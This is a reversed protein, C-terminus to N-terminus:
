YDSLQGPFERTKTSGSPKHDHKLFVELTIINNALQTWYMDDFGCGKVKIFSASKWGLAPRTLPMYRLTELAHSGQTWLLKFVAFVGPFCERLRGPFAWQGLHICSRTLSWWEMLYSETCDPPLEGFNWRFIRDGDEPDFILSAVLKVCATTLIKGACTVQEAWWVRNQVSIINPSYYLNQREEYLEGWRTEKLLGLKVGM